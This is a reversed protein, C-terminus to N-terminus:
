GEPYWQQRWSRMQAIERKQAGVIDEAIGRIEGNESEQLAVNAMAIASEHHPIMADIFARDFPRKKALKQPDTMGMMQMDMDSMGSPSEASGFERERIEGLKKIEAEQAGVIDRALRKIEEHQANKLAVKAMDIAGEHHPVMADIFAKDSYEGKPSVMQRAMMEDGMSGMSGHDMGQMGGGGKKGGDMSGHDMGQMGGDEKGGGAGGGGAAGGGCSALVLMVALLLGPLGFGKLAKM